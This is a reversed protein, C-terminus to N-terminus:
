LFKKMEETNARLTDLLKTGLKQVEDDVDKHGNVSGSEDSCTHSRLHRLLATEGMTNGQIMMEAMHSVSSDRMTKMETMVYSSMKAMASVSDPSEGRRNLLRTAEASINEYEKLQSLLANEFKSDECSSILQPITNKGMEVNQYIFNLLNTDGSM